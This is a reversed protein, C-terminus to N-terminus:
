RTEKWLRLTNGAPDTLVLGAFAPGSAPLPATLAMERRFVGDRRTCPPLLADDKRPFVALRARAIEVDGPMKVTAVMTQGDKKWTVKPTELKTDAIRKRGYPRMLPDGISLNVGPQNPSSLWSAEAFNYGHTYYYFLVDPM